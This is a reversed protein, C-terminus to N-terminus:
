QAVTGLGGLGCSNCSDFGSGNAQIFGCLSTIRAQEAASLTPTFATETLALAPTAPSIIGVTSLAHITTGWAALGPALASAGSGATAANCSGGSTALLKVVVSAPHAPRLTNSILDRDVSLSVLANPTVTCSCCSVEQEDPSFTYVNVCINGGTAGTNRINIVSDGLALNAAYRVQFPSDATIPNQALHNWSLPPKWDTVVRGPM